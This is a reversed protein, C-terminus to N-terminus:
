VIIEVKETFLHRMAFPGTAKREWTVSPSDCPNPIHKEPSSCKYVRGSPWTRNLTQPVPSPGDDLFSSKWSVSLVALQLQLNKGRLLYSRRGRQGITPSTFDLVHGLTAEVERRVGQAGREGVSAETSSGPVRIHSNLMEGPEVNLINEKMLKIMKMSAITFCIRSWWFVM